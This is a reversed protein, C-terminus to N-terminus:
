PPRGQLLEVAVHVAGVRLWLQGGHQVVDRRVCADVVIVPASHKSSELRITALCSHLTGVYQTVRQPQQEQVADAIYTCM